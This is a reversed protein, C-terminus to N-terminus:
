SKASEDVGTPCVDCRSAENGGACGHCGKGRDGPRLLAFLVFLAAFGLVAVLMGM